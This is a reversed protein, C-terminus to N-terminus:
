LRTEAGDTTKRPGYQMIATRINYRM